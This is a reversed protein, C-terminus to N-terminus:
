ADESPTGALAARAIKIAAAFNLVMDDRKEDAIRELADRLRQNEARLHEDLATVGGYGTGRAIGAELAERITDAHGSMRGVVKQEAPTADAGRHRVASFPAL